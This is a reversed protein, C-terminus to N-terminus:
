TWGQNVVTGSGLLTLELYSGAYITTDSAGAGSYRISPILTGGANVVIYGAEIFIERYLHNASTNVQTAAAAITGRQTWPATNRYTGAGSSGITLYSFTTFTATGLFLLSVTRSTSETRSTLVLGRMAYTAGATLTVTDRTSPFIEEIGSLTSPGTTYLETTASYPVGGADAVPPSIQYEV